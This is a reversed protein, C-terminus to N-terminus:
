AMREQVSLAGYLARYAKVMRQVSFEAEARARARAGMRARMGPDMLLARCAAAIGSADGVEFLHGTKGEEVLDPLGGVATAVVPLGASMAELVSNPMGESRSTMLMMDAASLLTPVDDRAGLIRFAGPSPSRSVRNELWGRLPGDGAILCTGDRFGELASEVARCFLDLEKEPSLRFLGLIVPGGAPLGLLERAAARGPLLESLSEVGNPIFRLDGRPVRYYRSIFDIAATSNVTVVSARSLAWRELTKRLPSRLWEGTRISSIFPLAGEGLTAVATHTSPGLLFAHAIRVGDERMLKRLRWARALKTHRGGPLVRVSVGQRQLAPGHPEVISSLCYVIPSFPGERHLGVALKALQNEGGGRHLQGIILAVRCEEPL